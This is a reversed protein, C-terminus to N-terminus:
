KTVLLKFLLVWVWPNVDWGFGRPKNISDWGNVFAQLYGIRSAGTRRVLYPDAGEAKAAPVTINQLREVAVNVIELIIRSAWRPMHIPSRWRFDSDNLLGNARYIVPNRAGGPLPPSMPTDWTQFTGAGLAWTERVWLRDGPQGYPNRITVVDGHTVGRVDPYSKGGKTWISQLAGDYNWPLFGNPPQPKVVRRTQTKEGGQIVRVSGATCIIPRERAGAVPTKPNQIEHIM